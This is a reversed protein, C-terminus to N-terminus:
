AVIAQGEANGNLFMQHFQSPAMYKLSGHMRRQNYYQMYESVVTYVDLFSEFENLGYCEEELIAHFAEIYANM